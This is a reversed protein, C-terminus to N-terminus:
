TIGFLELHKARTGKRGGGGERGERERERGGDRGGERGGVWRGGGERRGRGGGEERGWGGERGERGEGERREGGGGRGGERLRLWASRWCSTINRLTSPLKKIDRSEIVDCFSSSVHWCRNRTRSPLLSHCYPHPLRTGRKQRECTTKHM